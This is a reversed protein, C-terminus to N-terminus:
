DGPVAQEIRHSAAVSDIANRALKLHRDRLQLAPVPQVLMVLDPSPLTEDHVDIRAPLLPLFFDIPKKLPLRANITPRAVSREMAQPMAWAICRSPASSAKACISRMVSRTTGSALCSPDSMVKTISTAASVSISFPKPKKFVRQGCKSIRTCATANALRSASVPSKMLAVVRSLKRTACSMELKLRVAKLLAECGKMCPRAPDM